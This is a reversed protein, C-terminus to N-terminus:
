ILWPSQKEWEERKEILTDNGNLNRNWVASHAVVAYCIM